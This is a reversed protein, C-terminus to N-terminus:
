SEASVESQGTVSLLSELTQPGVLVETLEGAPNLILTTPLVAPRSLGLDAAPDDALMPFDIKLKRVQTALQEGSAGDFNVGLVNVQPYQQNLANLEPIERICPTCWQAWYNVVVWQGRLERITPSGTPSGTPSTSESCAALLTAAFLVALIKM